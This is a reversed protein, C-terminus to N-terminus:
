GDIGDPFTYVAFIFVAFILVAFCVFCCVFLICLVPVFGVLCVRCVNLWFLVFGFVGPM